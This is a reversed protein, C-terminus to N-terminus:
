IQSLIRSQWYHKEINCQVFEPAPPLTAGAQQRFGVVCTGRYTSSDAFYTCMTM